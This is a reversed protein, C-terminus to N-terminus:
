DVHGSMDIVDIAEKTFVFFLVLLGRAIPNGQNKNKLKNCKNRKLFFYSGLYM